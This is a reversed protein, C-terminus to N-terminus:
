VPSLGYTHGNSPQLLLNACDVFRLDWMSECALCFPPLLAGDVGVGVAEEGVGREMATDGTCGPFGMM